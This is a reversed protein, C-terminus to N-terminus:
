KGKEDQSIWTHIIEGIADPNAKALGVMREQIETRRRIEEPTQQPGQPLLYEGPESGLLATQDPASIWERTSPAGLAGAAALKPEIIRARAPKPTVSRSMRWVVLLVLIAALLPAVIKGYSAILDLIGGRRLPIADANGDQNFAATTVVLQDGRQQDIGAAAAIADRLGAADTEPISSDLLVSVSLRKLTAPAKTTKQTNESVEFNTTNETRQYQSDAGGTAANPRTPQINTATGPQAGGAAGGNYTEQVSSQSRPVGQNNAGGPTYTKSLSEQQSFDMEANVRVAARNSGAVRELLSQVETEVNKEVTKQLDLQTASLGIGSGAASGGDYLMRGSSDLITINKEELGEVSRAVMYAIGKLANDDLPRGSRLRLVVSATAPKQQSAFLEEKPVVIHVRSGEVQTLTNITRSLEGELARQYNLHQVFDTVGFSTKDFLEFGVQGGQPLGKASLKLKADTARNAPVTITAGGNEVKFPIGQAKLEETAPSADKPDLNTFATVYAGPGGAMKMFIFAFVLAGGAVGILALQQSRSLRGWLTRVQAILPAISGM